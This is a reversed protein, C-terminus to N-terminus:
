HPRAVGLLTAVLRDLEIPKALHAAMGSALCRAREEPLAHATQGVVPLGPAIAVIRRTAEFGDMVPMQVDMLVADFDGPGARVREVAEAGDSALVVRAGARTLLQEIVVQNVANDEAVLLRLGALPPAQEPWPPVPRPAAPLEAPRWPLRLEFESGRGLASRVLLRGGMLEVLRRSIALGLGTGGYRRTTSSDAQRFAVFLQAVQEDSMGIGTDTVRLVLSDGDRGVWLRIAGRPTFKVANSLLNALIQQLRLPDALCAGSLEPSRQLTLSLGKAEAGQRVLGVAAEALAVPDVPLSEIDLRHAEIKSYDLVDNIVGLLLRGSELIRRYGAQAPQGEAQDFGVQAFGLIGNLPTRIEHSMTALFESRQSAVREAELRAAERAQELARRDSIDRVVAVVEGERTPLFRAEFARGPGGMPLTFEVACMPAGAAVQALAHSVQRGADDPLTDQARRGMFEAPPVYLDELRSARYDLVTGDAAMRFYLDPLAQFISDLEATRRSVEQELGQAQHALLRTAARQATVDVFSALLCDEHGISVRVASFVMEREAGDGRRFSAEFGSVQGHDRLHQMAQDRARSDCWLEIEPGNRGLVQDAPRGLMECWARNVNLLRGNGMLGLAMGVPSTEFMAAFRAESERLAQMAQERTAEAEAAAWAVGLQESLRALLAVQEDDFFDAQRSYVMLAARTQGDVKIPFSGSAALGYRLALSRWPALAPNVAFDRAVQPQGSRFALGGPGQGRPVDDTSLRCEDAYAAADGAVAVPRLERLSLDPEAIWALPLGGDDVVVRCVQEFLRDRAPRAAILSNVETLVKYLRNVRRMQRDAARQATVDRAFGLVGVARGAADNLRIKYTEHERRQGSADVISEHIRLPKDSALATLDQQRYREARELPAIDADVQGVIQEVAHGTLQALAPNCFLYVGNMDKLWVPDPLTAVLTQLRQREEVLERLRRSVNRRMTFGWLLVVTVAAVAAALAIEVWGPGASATRGAPSAAAAAAAAPWAAAM